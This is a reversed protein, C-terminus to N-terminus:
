ELLGNPRALKEKNKLVCKVLPKNWSRFLVWVIGACQYCKSNLKQLTMKQQRWATSYLYLFQSQPLTGWTTESLRQSVDYQDTLFLFNALHSIELSFRILKFRQWDGELLLWFGTNLSFFTSLTFGCHVQLVTCEQELPCLEVETGVAELLNSFTYHPEVLYSCPLPSLVPEQNATWVEFVVLFRLSYESFYLHFAADTLAWSKLLLSPQSASLVMENM